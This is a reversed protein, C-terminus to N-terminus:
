GRSLQVLLIGVTVVAVGALVVPGIQEGLVLWAVAIGFGPNLFHFASARSPGIRKILAFWVWTAILGPVFVTYLFAWLLPWSPRVDAFSEFALGIPMLALSGVLMQLGVAMMLGTGLDGHRVLLTAGALACVGILCIVLGTM